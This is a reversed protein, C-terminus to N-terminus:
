TRNGDFDFHLELSHLRVLMGLLSHFGRLDSFGMKGQAMDINSIFHSRRGWAAQDDRRAGARRANRRASSKNQSALM